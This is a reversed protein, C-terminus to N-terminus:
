CEVRGFGHKMLYKFYENGSEKDTSLFVNRWTDCNNDVIEKTGCGQSFVNMIVVPTADIKGFYVDVRYEKQEFIWSKQLKVVDALQIHSWGKSTLAVVSKKM